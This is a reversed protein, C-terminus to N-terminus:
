KGNETCDDSQPAGPQAPSEGPARGPVLLFLPPPFGVARCVAARRVCAFVLDEDSVVRRVGAARWSLAARLDRSPTGDARLLRIGLPWVVRADAEILGRLADEVVITEVSETLYVGDGTRRASGSRVLNEAVRAADEDTVSVSEYDGFSVGAEWVWAALQAAVSRGSTQFLTVIKKENTM